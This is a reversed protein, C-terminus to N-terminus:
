LASVTQPLLTTASFGNAALAEKFANTIQGNGTAYFGRGRDVFLTDPKSAQGQFRRNVAGRVRHVLIEAGASEEGPFNDDFFEIHLKGRTLM